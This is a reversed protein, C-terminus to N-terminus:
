QIARYIKQRERGIGTYYLKALQNNQGIVTKRVYEYIDDTQNSHNSYVLCDYCALSNVPMFYRTSGDRDLLVSRVEFDMNLRAVANGLNSSLLNEDTIRHYTDDTQIYVSEISVVEKTKNNGVISYGNYVKGGINLGQLFSIISVNNIVQEWETEKLSPMQFNNSLDSFGNFNAIAVKLNAEISYKIVALRHQNFNSNAEEAQIGDTRNYDFIKTTDNGFEQIKQGKENVADAPSLTALKHLKGSPNMIENKLKLADKYYQLASNDLLNPNKHLEYTAQPQIIKKGNLITFVNRNVDDIYYKTDNEQYYRYTKVLNADTSTTDEKLILNQTLLNEGQITIGNYQISTDTEGSLNNIVYGSENVTKGGVIGQITVYNDLTYHIVVDFEGQRVYHCSYYIYPKLGTKETNDDNVNGNKELEEIANEDLKNMYPSYIYYGDYMTYVLAPIYKQIAEKDYGNMSFSSAISKFFINASAQIDRIRSNALESTDSNKTNLQFAQMADYTAKSLKSDYTTQLNLTNIQNGTYASLIISIPLIIIVFIMALNQIKM